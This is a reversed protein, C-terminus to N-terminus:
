ASAGSRAEAERLAQEYALVYTALRSVGSETKGTGRLWVEVNALTREAEEVAKARDLTM